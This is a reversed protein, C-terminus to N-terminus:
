ISHPYKASTPNM